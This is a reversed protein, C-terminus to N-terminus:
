KKRMFNKIQIGWNQGLMPHVFGGGGLTLIKFDYENQLAM